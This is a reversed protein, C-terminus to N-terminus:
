LQVRLRGLADLMQMATVEFLRGCGAAFLTDGGFLILEDPLLFAVHDLTRAPVAIVRANHGLVEFEANDGVDIDISPIAEQESGIVRVSSDKSSTLM